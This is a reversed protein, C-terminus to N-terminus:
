HQGSRAGGCLCHLRSPRDRAYASDTSQDRSYQYANQCAPQTADSVGNVRQSHWHRYHQKNPARKHGSKACLNEVYSLTWYLRLLHTLRRKSFAHIAELTAYM